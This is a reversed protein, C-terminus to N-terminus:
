EGGPRTAPEALDDDSVVLGDADAWLRDGPVFVVGAFEVPLDRAHAAGSEGRRPATGLARLGVPITATVATDRVAGHVVVGAWGNREAVTLLKDGLIARRLSGGGDVVLVRGRGPEQLARLVPRWDEAVQVTAIEGQFARTGGFDRFELGAVRVRDGHADCLDATAWPSEIM